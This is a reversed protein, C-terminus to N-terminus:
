CPGVETYHATALNFEERTLLYPSKDPTVLQQYDQAFGTQFTISYEKEIAYPESECLASLLATLEDTNALVLNGASTGNIRIMLHSHGDEHQSLKLSTIPPRLRFYQTM